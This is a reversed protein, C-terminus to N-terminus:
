KGWPRSNYIKIIKLLQDETYLATIGDTLSLKISTIIDGHSEFNILGSFKKFCLPIMAHTKLKVIGDCEKIEYVGDICSYNQTWKAEGKYIAIDTYTINDDLYKVFIHGDEYIKDCNKDVISPRNFNYNSLKITNFSTKFPTWDVHQVSLISSTDYVWNYKPYKMWAEADNKPVETHDTIKM